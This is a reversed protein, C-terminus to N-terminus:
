IGNLIAQTDYTPRLKFGRLCTCFVSSLQKGTIKEAMEHLPRFLGVDFIRRFFTSNRYNRLEFRLRTVNVISTKIELLFNDSINQGVFISLDSLPYNTWVSSRTSCIKDFKLCTETSLSKCLFETKENCKKYTSLASQLLCTFFLVKIKM